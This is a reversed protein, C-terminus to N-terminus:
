FFKGRASRSVRTGRYRRDARDLADPDRRSHIADRSINCDCGLLGRANARAARDARVCDCRPRHSHCAHDFSPEKRGLGLTEDSCSRELSSPKALNTAVSRPWGVALPMPKSPSGENDKTLFVEPSDILLFRFYSALLSGGATQYSMIGCRYRERFLSHSDGRLRYQFIRNVRFLQRGARAVVIEYVASCRIFLFIFAACILLGPPFQSNTSRSM